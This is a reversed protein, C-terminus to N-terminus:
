THRGEPGTGIYLERRLEEERAARELQMRKRLEWPFQAELPNFVRTFGHSPSPTPPKAMKFQSINAATTELVTPEPASRISARSTTQNTELCSPKVQPIPQRDWGHSLTASGKHHISNGCSTQKEVFRPESNKNIEDVPSSGNPAAFSQAREPYVRNAVGISPDAGVPERSAEATGRLGDVVLGNTRHEGRAHTVEPRTRLAHFTPLSPKSPRKAKLILVVIGGRDQRTEIYGERRLTRMWAELTRRNFGTEEEIERYTLPAGGLVYGVGGSQHTQRLVLWGYLWVASGMRAYHGAEFLVGRLGTNFDKERM